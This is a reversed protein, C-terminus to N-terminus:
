TEDSSDRGGRGDYLSLPNKCRVVLCFVTTSCYSCPFVEKFTSCKLTKKQKNKDACSKFRSFIESPLLIFAATLVLCPPLCCSYNRGETKSQILEMQQRLCLCLIAVNEYKEGMGTPNKKKDCSKATIECLLIYFIFLGRRDVQPPRGFKRFTVKALDKYINNAVYLYKRLDFDFYCRFQSNFM